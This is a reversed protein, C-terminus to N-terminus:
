RNNLLVWEKVIETETMFKRTVVNMYIDGDETNDSYEYYGNIYRALSFCGSVDAIFDNGNEHKDLTKNEKSM